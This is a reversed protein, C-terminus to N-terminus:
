GKISVPFLKTIVGHNEIQSAHIRVKCIYVYTISYTYLICPVHLGPICAYWLCLYMHSVGQTTHMCSGFISKTNSKRCIHM